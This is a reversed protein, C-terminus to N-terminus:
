RATHRTSLSTNMVEVVYERVIENPDELTVAGRGIVALQSTCM